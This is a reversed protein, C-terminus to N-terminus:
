ILYILIMLLWVLFISFHLKLANRQFGLSITNFKSPSSETVKGLYFELWGQDLIKLISDAKKMSSMLVGQGSLWPMFWMFGSFTSLFTSSSLGMSTIGLVSVSLVVSASIVALAGMKMVWPLFILVPYSFSLLSLSPGSLLSIFTLTAVPGLLTFDQECVSCFSGYGPTSIFALFSLRVSYLVTLGLCVFMLFLISMGWSDQCALEVILDKSYFGSMFPIGCLSFNALNMCVSVLPFNKVLGGFYRVDQTSGVGHILVGACLFLLAKFLAHSLLHFFAVQYLGLSIAFMMMGLQSLTSLAIIKKLDCEFIAVVGSMFMTMMSIFMLVSSGLEGLLFSFRILLYVGATVLTSSHVLASVPTPAAMAAPLWASFPIQASKTLAAVMVLFSLIMLSTLDGGLSWTSFNFDGLVVFWAISLLVCVDGVRNSLVTIMGASNSKKSPYYIVLCYSILGLGDWGLLISFINPSIILIVMSVVFGLVLLIFRNADGDGGMYSKSYWVVNSSICLVVTLFSCSVWDMLLTLSFNISGGGFSWEIFISSDLSLFMLGSVGVLVMVNMLAFSIKQYLFKDVIM